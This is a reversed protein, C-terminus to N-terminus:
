AARPDLSAAIEGAVGDKEVLVHEDERAVVEEVADLEHGPVLVFRTGEARVHEYEALTLTIRESCSTRSCECLFEYGHEGEGRGETFGDAVRHIRENVERFFAENRALREQHAVQM